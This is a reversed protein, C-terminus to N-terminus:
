EERDFLMKQKMKEQKRKMWRRRYYIGVVIIIMVAAFTLYRARMLNAIQTDAKEVDEYGQIAGQDYASLAQYRDMIQDVHVKDKIGIDSFPYLEKMIMENIADIEAEIEEIQAMKEKLDQLLPEYDSKNRANEL